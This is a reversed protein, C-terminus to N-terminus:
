AAAALTPRLPLAVTFPESMTPVRVTVPLAPAELEGVPGARIVGGGGGVPDAIADQGDRDLVVGAVADVGVLQVGVEAGGHGVQVPTPENPTSRLHAAGPAAGVDGDVEGRLVGSPPALSPTRPKVVAM